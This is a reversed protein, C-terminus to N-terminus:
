KPLLKVKDILADLKFYKDAAAKLSPSLAFDFAAVEVKKGLRKVEDIVSVYDEDGSILIVTDCLDRFASVLIDTALAVDVGKAVFVTEAGSQRSKLSKVIVTFGEYTLAQHFRVQNPNPPVSISSYYYPRVLFREGVLIEVLKYFDVKSNLRRLAWFLNPGDIFVMVRERNTKM